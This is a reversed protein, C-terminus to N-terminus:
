PTAYRRKGVISRKLDKQRHGQVVEMLIMLGHFEKQGIKGLGARIVANELVFPRNQEIGGLEVLHPIPFSVANLSFSSM